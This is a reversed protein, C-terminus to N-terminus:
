LGGLLELTCEFLAELGEFPEGPVRYVVVRLWAPRICPRRYVNKPGWLRVLLARFAGLYGWLTGFHGGRSGLTSGLSGLAEWLSGWTVRFHVWTFGFHDLTTWLSGWTAGLHM